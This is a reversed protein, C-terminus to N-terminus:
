GHRGAGRRVARLDVHEPDTWSKRVLEVPADFVHTVVLDRTPGTTIDDAVAM